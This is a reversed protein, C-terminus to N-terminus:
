NFKANKGKMFKKGDSDRVTEAEDFGITFVNNEITGNVELVKITFEAQLALNGDDDFAKVSISRPFEGLLAGPTFDAFSLSSLAKGNAAVRNIQLVRTQSDSLELARVSLHFPQRNTKGGPMELERVIGGAGDDRREDKVTLSKVRNSSRANETKFDSLRLACLACEDDDNSLYDVPLFLPNPLAVTTRPADNQRYSLVKQRHDLLYFRKGNYAVDFDTKLGLHKDTRSKVRYRDGEAWYEYTGVGARFDKGYIAIKVDAALRVSKIASYRERTRELQRIAKEKDAGAGNGASAALM